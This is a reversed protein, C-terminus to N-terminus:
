EATRGSLRYDPGDLVVLAGGEALRSIVPWYYGQTLEELPLNSTVITRLNVQEYRRNVLSYLVESTWDSTRERGLDDLVVLSASAAQDVREAWVRDDRARDMDLRLGIMLDTVNVWVPALSHRPVRVSEGPPLNELYARFRDQSEKEETARVNAAAGALHSKGLGPAGALVLGTITGDVLRRTQEQARRQSPNAPVFNDITCGAYRLPVAGWRSTGSLPM